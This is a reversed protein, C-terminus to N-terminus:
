AHSENMRPKAGLGSHSLHHHFVVSALPHFAPPDLLERLAPQQM